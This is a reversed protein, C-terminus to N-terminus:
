QKVTLQNSIKDSGAASSADSAVKQKEDDSKVPGKLTVAGDAVIVKVNHAYTSLDKDAVIAKRVQAALMRDSKSNTQKDATPSQGKNQASNDPPQALSLPGCTLSLALAVSAVSISRVINM